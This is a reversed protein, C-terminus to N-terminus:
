SRVTLPLIAKWPIHLLVLNKEQNRSEQNKTVTFSDRLVFFFRIKLQQHQKQQVNTM